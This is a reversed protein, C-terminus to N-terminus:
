HAPTVKFIVPRTGDPCSVIVARDHCSLGCDADMGARLVADVHTSLVRWAKPCFRKGSSFDDYNMLDVTFEDGCKFMHCPGAEPDDLYRSQLDTFCERRLVTIRCRQSM